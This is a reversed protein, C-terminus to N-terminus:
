TRRSPWDTTFLPVSVTWLPSWSPTAPDSASRSSTWGHPTFSIKTEGDAFILERRAVYWAVPGTPGTPGPREEGPPRDQKGPRLRLHGPHRRQPQAQGQMRQNHPHHGAAPCEATSDRGSGCDLRRVPYTLDFYPSPLRTGDGTYPLEWLPHGEWLATWQRIEWRRKGHTHRALLPWHECLCHWCGTARCKRCLFAPGHPKPRVILQSM